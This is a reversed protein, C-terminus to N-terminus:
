RPSSARLATPTALFDPVHAPALRRVPAEQSAYVPEPWAAAAIPSDSSSSRQATNRRWSSGAHGGSGSPAEDALLHPGAPGTRSIGSAPRQRRQEESHSDHQPAHELWLVVAGVRSRRPDARRTEVRAYVLDLGVGRIDGLYLLDPLGPAIRVFQATSSRSVSFAFWFRGDGSWSSVRIEGVGVRGLDLGRLVAVM